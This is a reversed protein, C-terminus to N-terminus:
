KAIKTSSKNAIIIDRKVIIKKTALLNNDVFIFLIFIPTGIFDETLFILSVLLIWFKNSFSNRFLYFPLLYLSGLFLGYHAFVMTLSSSGNGALPNQKYDINGLGCGLFPNKLFTSIDCYIDNTRAILSGNEIFFKLRVVRSNVIFYCAILFLVILILVSLKLKIKIIDILYAFLVTALILYGATSQTSLITLIFIINKYQGIKKFKSINLFLAINLFAQFAGGEWFISANRPHIHLHLNEVMHGDLILFLYNYYRFGTRLIFDPYIRFTELPVIKLYILLWELFSTIALILVINIFINRLQKYPISTGVFYASMFTMILGFYAFDKVKIFLQHCFLLCIILALYQLRLDNKFCFKLKSFFILMSFCFMSSLWLFDSEASLRYISGSVLIFLTVISYNIFNSMLGVDLLKSDEGIPSNLRLNKEM